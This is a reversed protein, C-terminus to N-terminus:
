QAGRAVLIDVVDQNKLMKAVTMAIAIAVAALQRGEMIGLREALLWGVALPPLLLLALRASPRPM